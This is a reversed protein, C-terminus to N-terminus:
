PAIRDRITDYDAVDKAEGISYAKLLVDQARRVQDDNRAHIIALPNDSDVPSGVGALHVLGVAPDVEDEPATRGGGLEVVALGVTRADVKTVLGAEPAYVPVELPAKPLYVEPKEMFDAPGGLATVMQGFAEAAKGSEFAQQMMERGVDPKKALGATALAEGGIAVTVDWLRNDVHTGKLFDVANQVEVANGAASALSENMDTLLATTKLGAGNAVLVLSEALAKADDYSGMFAGTGWKVDLVLTQLGASLKKSLISATILDISEVTGTVDRIGYFRKDAPALDATQGIIACGVDKVVKRFLANDPKAQYGPISELKDLTGGTHGLGRGSIMPVAAGCVALAPALMLSVNDGVGGTSHKDVIPADIDSWDLVAGSDRMALTLAVREDVSLGQFFIAMALAAVQGETVSGDTLGTVFLQIEEPSLVGGDRKKRVIEQPLM